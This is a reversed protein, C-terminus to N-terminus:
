LGTAKRVFPEVAEHGRRQLMEKIVASYIEETISGRSFLYVIDNAHKLAKCAQCAPLINAPNNPAGASLPFAHDMTEAPNTRCYACKGAYAEVLAHIEPMSIDGPVQYKKARFRAQRVWGSLIRNPIM